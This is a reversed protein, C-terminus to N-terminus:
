YFRGNILNAQTKPTMHHFVSVVVVFISRHVLKTKKQKKRLDKWQSCLKGTRLYVIVVISFQHAEDFTEIQFLLGLLHCERM